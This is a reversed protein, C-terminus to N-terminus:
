PKRATRTKRDTVYATLARRFLNRAVEPDEDAAVLIRCVVDLKAPDKGAARMGDRTHELM